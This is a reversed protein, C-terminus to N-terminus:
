LNQFNLEARFVPQMENSDIGQRRGEYAYGSSELPASWLEVTEEPKVESLYNIDLRYQSAETLMGIDAADQIWQIYRANNTHGFFDIDSYKATREGIKKLGDASNISAPNEPIADIGENGPMNEMVIQPRLPRMKETDVVLWGGRGRVATNGSSDKISYDRLAFLKEWKRPWTSVEVVEGYLPRREVLISIRSLIWAHGNKLMAERGVGLHQAHSIAAEQFFDFISWLTLRDSRDINGFRVPITETWINKIESM